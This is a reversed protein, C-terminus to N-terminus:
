HLAAARVPERIGEDYAVCERDPVSHVVNEDAYVLCLYKM